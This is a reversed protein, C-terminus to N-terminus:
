KKLGLIQFFEFKDISGSICSLATEVNEKATRCSLCHHTGTSYVIIGVPELQEFLYNCIEQTMLEQTQPKSAFHEVVRAFKSLGAYKKTPIYGIAVDGHFIVLHHECTSTYNIGKLVIMQNIKRDENDFMTFNFDMPQLGRTFNEEWISVVRRPTEKMGNKTFDLGFESFLDVVKGEVEKRKEPTFM